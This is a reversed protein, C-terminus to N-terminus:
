LRGPRFVVQMTGTGKIEMTIVNSPNFGTFVVDMWHNSSEISTKTIDGNGWLEENHFKISTCSGSTIKFTPTVPRRGIDRGSFTVTTTGRFSVNGFLESGIYGNEFNLDDWLWDANISENISLKYPDFSYSITIKDRGDEDTDPESIGIRGNYYWQPDDSLIVQVKRGHCFDMIDSYLNSWTDWGKLVYFEWSGERQGLLPYGTVVESLDFLGDGGPNDGFNTKVSPPNVKPPKVPVLKWNEYTDATNGAKDKIIIKHEGSYGGTEAVVSM